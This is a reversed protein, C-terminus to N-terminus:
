GVQRRQFFAISLALIGTTYCASYSLGKILYSAPVAGKEYIADSIWFVQMNPLLATYIRAWLYEGAYQSAVWDSILGLMFVAICFVLTMVMNCRTSFLVALAVLILTGFLLLLSAYIDFLSFQAESPGVKWEKNVFTLLFLAIASLIAGTIIASASFSWDYSYNVIASILLSGLLIVCAAIIVPMDMEDSATSMVGHRAALLYAATGIFHALCVASSIGLFKGIVFVPRAVPKSLVTTITKSEIEETIAGTASFIAIFLGALFLTSLGLERLLKVDEDLTYMSVSPALIFLLIAIVIIVAYIPQRLTEVFTNKAISYLATFM